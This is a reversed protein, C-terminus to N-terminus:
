ADGQRKLAVGAGRRARWGAAITLGTPDASGARASACQLYRQWVAAPQAGPSPLSPSSSLVHFLRDLPWLLHIATKSHLMVSSSSSKQASEPFATSTIFTACVRNVRDGM